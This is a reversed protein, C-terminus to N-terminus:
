QANIWTDSGTLKVAVDSFTVRFPKGDATGRHDTAVLLPGAKKYDTWTAIVLRPKIPGGRRYIFERVRNDPGIFLEWTDGPTYGVNSPYKVVLHQATGKGLPLKAMGKDTVEPANDWIVHFPFILWYQDNMFSPDINDKVNAPQSSLESRLYTVKVPQGSKDKSEYTVRGTKPEWTWSRSVKVPGLNLNFTYRIADIQGFSDIGFEKAMNEAIAPRNQAWAAAPFLVAAFAFLRILSLPRLSTM